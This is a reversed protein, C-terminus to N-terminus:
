YLVRIDVPQICAPDRGVFTADDVTDGDLSYDATSRHCWRERLAISRNRLGMLRAAYVYRRYRFVANNIIQKRLFCLVIFRLFRECLPRSNAVHLRMFMSAM